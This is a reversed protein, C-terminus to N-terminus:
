FYTVFKRLRDNLILNSECYHGLARDILCIWVNALAMVGAERWKRFLWLRVLVRTETYNLRFRLLVFRRSRYFIARVSARTTRRHIAATKSENNELWEERASVDFTWVIVSSNKQRFVLRYRIICQEPLSVARRFTDVGVRAPAEFDRIYIPGPRSM